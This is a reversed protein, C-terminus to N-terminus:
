NRNFPFLILNDPTYGSRIRWEQPYLNNARNGLNKVWGLPMDQFTVLCYNREDSQLQIAERRLYSLATELSLEETPFIDRNLFISLALAHNPIYDKGKLCALPIGSHIVNMQSSLLAADEAYEKPFASILNENEDFSFKDSEKIWSRINEPVPNKKGSKSKKTRIRNYLKERDTIEESEPKRFVAMFLGEGKTVHPMFRYCPISGTIEKHINWEPNLQVSLPIAGFKNQIYGAITENEETNYTCTSYILLGGPRLADWINNLIEQQRQSCLEINSVSWERIAEQDKRFMGEGSCPADTLIVDFYHKLSKFATSDNNAVICYPNGWKIINEALIHARSRIIENCVVLSGEPLTSLALTTKGGPAACLDLYRVPQTVYQRIVQDLFMSSAEQVYYAGAHFRPDFTFAPRESLYYGGECWLVPEVGSLVFDTKLPNLRISVPADEQMSKEFAPYEEKLLNRTREAFAFPLEM